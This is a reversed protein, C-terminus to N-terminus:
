ASNSLSVLRMDFSPTSELTICGISTSARTKTITTKARPVYIMDTLHAYHILLHCASLGVCISPFKVMHLLSITDLKQITTTINDASRKWTIHTGMDHSLLM